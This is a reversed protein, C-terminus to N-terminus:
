LSAELPEQPVFGPHIVRNRSILDAEAAISGSVQHCIVLSPLAALPTHAIVDRAGAANEAMAALTAARLDSIAAYLDAPFPNKM